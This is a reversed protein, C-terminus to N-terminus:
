RFEPYVDLWGWAVPPGGNLQVRYLYVTGPVLLAVSPDGTAPLTWTAPTVGGAFAGLGLSMAIVPTAGDDAGRAAVAITASTATQDGDLDLTLVLPVGRRATLDQRRPDDTM